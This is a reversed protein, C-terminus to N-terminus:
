RQLKDGGGVWDKDAGVKFAAYHALNFSYRFRM